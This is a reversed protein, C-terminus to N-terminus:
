SVITGNTTSTVNWTATCPGQGPIHWGQCISCWASTTGGTSTPGVYPRIVYPGTTTRAGRSEDAEPSTPKLAATLERIADILDSLRGDIDGFGAQVIDDLDM